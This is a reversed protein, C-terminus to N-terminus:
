TTGSGSSGVGPSCEPEVNDQVVEASGSLWTVLKVAGKMAKECVDWDESGAQTLGVMLMSKVHRAHQTSRSAPVISLITWVFIGLVGKWAKLPIRWVTVWLSFFDEESCVAPSSLAKRKM